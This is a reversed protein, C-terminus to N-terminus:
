AARMQGVAASERRSRRGETARPWAVLRGGGGAGGAQVSGSATGSLDTKTRNPVPTISREVVM